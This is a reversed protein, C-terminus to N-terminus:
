NIDLVGHFRKEDCACVISPVTFREVDAAVLVDRVAIQPLHQDLKGAAAAISEDFPWSLLAGDVDATEVRVRRQESSSSTPYRGHQQAIAQRPRELVVPLMEIAIDARRLPRLPRRSSAQRLRDRGM